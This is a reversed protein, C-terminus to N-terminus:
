APKILWALNRLEPAVDGRRASYWDSQTLTDHALERHINQARFGLTILQQTAFELLNIHWKQTMPHQYIISNKTLEPAFLRAVDEDVEFSGQNIHPGLWVQYEQVQNLDLYNKTTQPVIQHVLGRWGAHIIAAPQQQDPPICILPLCDATKILMLIQSQSSVISDAEFTSPLVQSDLRCTLTSHTQQVEFQTAHPYHQKLQQRTLNKNGFGFHWGNCEFHYGWKHLSM